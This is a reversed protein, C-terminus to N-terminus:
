LDSHNHSDYKFFIEGICRTVEKINSFSSDLCDNLEDIKSLLGYCVIPAVPVSSVATGIKIGKILNSNSKDIIFPYDTMTAFMTIPVKILDACTESFAKFTIGKIGHPLEEKSSEEIKQAISCQMNDIKNAIKDTKTSILEVKELILRLEDSCKINDVDAMCTGRYINLKKHFNNILKFILM